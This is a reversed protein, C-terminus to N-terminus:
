QEYFLYVRLKDDVYYNNPKAWIKQIGHIQFLMALRNEFNEITFISIREFDIVRVISNKAEILERSQSLNINDDAPNAQLVKGYFLKGLRNKSTKHDHKYWKTEFPCKLM